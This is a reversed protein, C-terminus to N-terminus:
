VGKSSEIADRVQAAVIDPVPKLQGNEDVQCESKDNLYCVSNDETLGYRVPCVAGELMVSAIIRKTV